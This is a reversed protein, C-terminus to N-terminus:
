SRHTIKFTQIGQRTKGDKDNRVLANDLWCYASSRGPVVLSQHHLLSYIAGMIQKVEKKGHYRSWVHIDIYEDQGKDTGGAGDSADNPIIQTDAIEIFPYDSDTPKDIPHDVVKVVGSISAGDLTQYIVTQLDFSADM